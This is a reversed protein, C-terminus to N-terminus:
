FELEWLIEMSFSNLKVLPEFSRYFAPANNPSSPSLYGPPSVDFYLGAESVVVAAASYTIETPTFITRVTVFTIIPFANLTHSLVKLYVGATIQLPVVLQVVGLTEPQSGGGVGIWRARRETLPVDPSGFTGWVFLRSLADRGVATLVNHGRRRFVTFEYENVDPSVLTEFVSIVSPDDLTLEKGHNPETGVAGRLKLRDGQKFGLQVPTAGTDAPGSLTYAAGSYSGSIALTSSSTIALKNTVSPNGIMGVTMSGSPALGDAADFSSM